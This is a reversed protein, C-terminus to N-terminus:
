EWVMKNIPFIISGTKSHPYINNLVFSIIKPLFNM